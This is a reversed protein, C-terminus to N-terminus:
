QYWLMKYSAMKGRGRSIAAISLAIWALSFPAARSFAILHDLLQAAQAESGGFERFCPRPSM